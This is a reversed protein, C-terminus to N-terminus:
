LSQYRPDVYPAMRMQRARFRQKDDDSSHSYCRVCSVGDEYHKHLKDEASLPQGCCFCMSYDGTTLGHGVAMRKDFVYCQGHWKSQEPPIEELYKLIGGKLHYVEEFGEARMFASAKECRIGGTCYMAVKKHKAKDLKTRVYDAFDTFKEIHPDEARDFIGIATEYTNRTDLLLVEPDDVLNNWDKAEVYTGALRAPDAHPQKFTILEKKLRVKLRNFPKLPASSFKVTDRPLGTQQELLDLMHEVADGQGALTGNIGESAVLLTGCIKLRMFEDLLIQRLRLTDVIAVFQYLAAVTYTM